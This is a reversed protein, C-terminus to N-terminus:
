VHPATGPRYVVVSSDDRPRACDRYLLAALLAPDRRLVGPYRDLKWHGTLGDSHMVLTAGAPWPYDFPQIRRAQHGVIGNHSVLARTAGDAVVWSAINGLGAFRLQGRSPDLEAVAAAAGRTSQLGRHLLDMIQEAPRAANAQFLHVATNAAAAASVGHGLGDVVLIVTRSGASVAAWGDGCETEGAVPLAIGAVLAGREPAGPGSAPWVRALVATGSEVASFIEFTTALRSAAGLGTGMTGARSYGDRLCEAVNAMGPGRDICLMEVGAQEGAQVTRLIMEGGTAHRVANTAIETAIIGLNSLEAAGLGARTGTAVAARRAEGIRSTDTLPVAVSVESRPRSRGAESAGAHL